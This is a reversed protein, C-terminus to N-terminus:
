KNPFSGLGRSCVPLGFRDKAFCRVWEWLSAGRDGRGHGTDDGDGRGGPAVRDTGVESRGGREPRLQPQRRPGSRRELVPAASRRPPRRVRRGRGPARRVRPLIRGQRGGGRNRGPLLPLSSAFRPAAPVAAGHAEKPGGRRGRRRGRPQRHAQRVQERGGPVGRAQQDPGFRLAQALRPADRESAPRAGGDAHRRVGRPPPQRRVGEGGGRDADVAGRGQRVPRRGPEGRGVPHIPQPGDDGPPEGGRRADIPAPGPRSLRRRRVRREPQRRPRAEGRRREDPDIGGHTEPRGGRRAIPHPSHSGGARPPRRLRRRAFRAGCGVTRRWRRGSRAQEQPRGEEQRVKEERGGKELRLRRLRVATDRLPTTSVRRFLPFPRGRRHEPSNGINGFM